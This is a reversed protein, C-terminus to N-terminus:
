PMVRQNCCMGALNACISNTSSTFDEIGHVNYRQQMSEDFTQELELSEKVLEHQRHYSMKGFRESTTKGACLNGSQM